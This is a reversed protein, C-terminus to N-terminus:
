SRFNLIIKRFDEARPVLDNETDELLYVKESEGTENEKLICTHTFGANHPPKHFVAKIGVDVWCYPLLHLKNFICTFTYQFDKRM